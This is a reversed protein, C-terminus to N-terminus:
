LVSISQITKSVPRGPSGQQLITRLRMRAKHLQSKSTGISYGLAEAIEHHEYGVVDHLFFIQRYGRPLQRLPRRLSMRDVVASLRMDLRGLERRPFTEGETKSKPELSTEKLRKTRLRM